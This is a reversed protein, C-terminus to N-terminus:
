IIKKSWDILVCAHPVQSVDVIYNHIIGSKRNFLITFEFLLLEDSLWLGESLNIVCYNRDTYDDFIRKTDQDDILMEGQNPLHKFFENVDPKYYRPPVKRTSAETFLAYRDYLFEHFEELSRITNSLHYKNFVRAPETEYDYSPEELYTRPPLGPPPPPLPPRRLDEGLNFVIIEALDADSVEYAEKQCQTFLLLCFTLLFGSRTM